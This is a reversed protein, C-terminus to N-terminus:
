NERRRTKILVLGGAGLMIAVAAVIGLGNVSSRCGGKEEATVTAEWTARNGALDRVTVAIEYKGAKDAVFSNNEDLTVSTKTGDEAVHSITYGLRLADTATVNDSIDFDPLTVKDGVTVKEALAKSATIVPLTDDIVLLQKSAKAGTANDTYTVTYRGTKAATFAGDANLAVTLGDPDVLSVTIDTLPANQYFDFYANRPIVIANATGYKEAFLSTDLTPLPDVQSYAVFPIQTYEGGVQKYDPNLSHEGNYLEIIEGSQREVKINRFYVDISENAIADTTYLTLILHTTEISTNNGSKDSLLATPIQFRRTVWGTKAAEPTVNMAVGEEDKLTFLKDEGSTHSSMLGWTNEYEFDLMVGNVGSPVYLDYILTDGPMQMWLEKFWGYLSVRTAKVTGQANTGTQMNWRIVMGTDHGVFIDVTKESAFGSASEARYTVKYTGGLKNDTSVNARFVKSGNKEQLAVENGFPDLVKVLQAMVTDTDNGNSYDQAEVALPLSVESGYVDVRYGGEVKTLPLGSLDIVPEKLWDSVITFEFDVDTNLDADHATYKINYTTKYDPAEGASRPRFIKAGNEGDTLAVAEGGMTVSITSAVNQEGSKWANVAPLVVDHMSDATRAIDAFDKELFSCADSVVEMKYSYCKKMDGSGISVAVDVLGVDDATPTYSNGSIATGNVTVSYNDKTTLATGDTAKAEAFSVAMGATGNQPLTAPDIGAFDGTGKSLKLASTIHQDTDAFPSMSQTGLYGRTVDGAQQEGTFNASTLTQPSNISLPSEENAGTTYTFNKYYVVIKNGSVLDASNWTVNAAKHVGIIAHAMKAGTPFASFSIERHYWGNTFYASLDATSHVSVGNKDKMEESESPRSSQFSNTLFSWSGDNQGSFFGVGAVACPSYVDYSLVTSTNLPSSEKWGGNLNLTFLFESNAKAGGALYEQPIEIELKFVESQVAASSRISDYGGGLASVMGLPSTAMFACATALMVGMRKKKAMM